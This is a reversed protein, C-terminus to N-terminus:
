RPAAAADIRAQTRYRAPTVGFEESFRTTLHAQSSFGCNYAIEAISLETTVLQHVAQDLRTRTLHESPTMQFSARFRRTFTAPHLDLIDAIEGITISGDVARRMYREVLGREGANFGQALAAYTKADEYMRVFEILLAETLADLMPARGARRQAIEKRIARALTRFELTPRSSLGQLPTDPDFETHTVDEFAAQILAPPFFLAFHAGDPQDALPPFGPAASIDWACRNGAPAFIVDEPANRELRPKVWGHEMELNFVGGPLIAMAYYNTRPVSYAGPAFEAAAGFVSRKEDGLILPTCGLGQAELLAM